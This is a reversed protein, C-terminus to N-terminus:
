LKSRDSDLAVEAKPTSIEDNKPSSKEKVVRRASLVKIIEFKSIDSIQELNTTAREQNSEEFQRRMESKEFELNEIRQSYKTETELIQRNLKQKENMWIM